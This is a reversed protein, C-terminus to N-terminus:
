TIRTDDGGASRFRLSRTIRITSVATVPIDSPRKWGCGPIVHMLQWYRWSHERQGATISLLAAHPRKEAGSAERERKQRSSTGVGGLGRRLLRNDRVGPREALAQLHDAEGDQTGRHDDGKAAETASGGM